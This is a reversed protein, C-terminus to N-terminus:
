RTDNPSSHNLSMRPGWVIPVIKWPTKKRRRSPFFNEAIDRTEISWSLVEYSRPSHQTHRVNPKHRIHRLQWTRRMLSAHDHAASLFTAEIRFSLNVCTHPIMFYPTNMLVKARRLKIFRLHPRQICDYLILLEIQDYARSFLQSQCDEHYYRNWLKCNGMDFIGWKRDNYRQM